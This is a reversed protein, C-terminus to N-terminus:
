PLARAGFIMRRALFRRAPPLIDVLALGAGRMSRLLPNSNSFVRVLADTVGIGARRDLRRERRYRRLFSAGGIEHRQSGAVLEALEYADRLGLNMGQGAVPHLTQAANGILVVRQDPTVERYRLALPFASRPGTSLFRGARGGFDAQLRSLFEGDGAHQLSEAAASQTSWVLAYRDRFPLLAIPGGPTFREWAINGHPRSTEVEAVVASQGYDRLKGKAARDGGDAVVLLRASASRVSGSSDIQVVVSDDGGKWGTVLGPEGSTTGSLAALVSSYPAVYGLAPLGYEDARILSRGFGGAQSIHISGIATAEPWAGFQEILQRSGYSLAIPREGGRVEGCIHLFRVGQARLALCLMAGVPGGGAVIVEADVPFIQKRTM